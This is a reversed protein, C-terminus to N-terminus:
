VALLSPVAELIKALDEDVSIESYSYTYQAECDVSSGYYSTKVALDGNRDYRYTTRSKGFDDSESCHELLKGDADYTWTDSYSYGNGNYVHSILLGNHYVYTSQSDIGGDFYYTSSIENGDFDFLRVSQLEGDKTCRIETLKGNTYKNEYSAVSVDDDYYAWSTLLNGQEDYTYDARYTEEDNYYSWEAVLQNAENYQLTSKYTSFTGDYYYKYLYTLMNGQDDFTYETRTDVSGDTTYYIASLLNGIRLDYTEECYLVTDKYTVVRLLTHDNEYTIDRTLVYNEEASSYVQTMELLLRVPVKEPQPPEVPTEETPESPETPTTELKGETPITDTVSISVDPIEVPQNTVPKEETLATPLCCCCGCLTAALVAALALAIWKKM